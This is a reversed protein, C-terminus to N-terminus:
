SVGDRTKKAEEFLKRAQEASISGTEDRERIIANVTKKHKEEAEKVAGKKAEVSNKVIDAAQKATINKAEKKLSEFIAKQEVESDSMTKVATTMMEDQIKNIEQKKM